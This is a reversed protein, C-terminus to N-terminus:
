DAFSLFVFNFKFIDNRAIYKGLVLEESAPLLTSKRLFGFFAILCATRFALDSPHDSLSKVLDILIPVTIPLKQKPPKGMLRAM